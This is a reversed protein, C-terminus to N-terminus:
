EPGFVLRVGLLRVPKHIEFRGLAVLAAEEIVSPDTTAPTIRRTKTREWFTSTRVTVGVEAVTHGDGLVEAALERALRVLQETIVAPEVIDAAFTEQHGRSVAKRPETVLDRPSGGRGLDLLHAGGTAGFRAVLRDADAAALEGVTTIGLEALHTSTRPGVGWLASTPRDGMTGLWTATSLVATGAPKAFGTATKAQLPTDGAGVSCVLGTRALVLAQAARALDAPSGSAACAPRSVEGVQAAAARSDPPEATRDTPTGARGPGAGSEHPTGRPGGVRATGPGSERLAVQRGGRPAVFAEEWGLVEVDGLERLADMVEVSGAACAKEDYPLYVADPLRRHAVRLPTGARIGRDRAEYSACMCVTRPVTPDGTGGVIVARGVLAPDRRRELAVLFQDVDAHLVVM